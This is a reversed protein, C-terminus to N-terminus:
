SFCGMYNSSCCRARGAEYTLSEREARRIKRQICDKHFGNHLASSVRVFIWGISPLLYQRPQVGQWIWPLPEGFTTGCVEVTGKSETVEAHACLTGFQEACEILPECHDSFPLSVFRSGTLWSRVACFLIANTLHENPASTTLAVPEYGYTAQLTGLWGCTHFVSANPHRAILEPWRADRLPDIAFVGTYSPSMMGWTAM